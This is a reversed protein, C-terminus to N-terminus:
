FRREAPRKGWQGREAISGTLWSSACSSRTSNRPPSGLAVAAAGIQLGTAVGAYIEERASANRATTPYSLPM